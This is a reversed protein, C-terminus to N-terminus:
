LFKAMDLCLSIAIVSFGVTAAINADITPAMKTANRVYLGIEFVPSSAIAGAMHLEGSSPATFCDPRPHSSLIQRNPLYAESDFVPKVAIPM